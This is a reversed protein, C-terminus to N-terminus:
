NVLRMVVARNEQEPVGDATSVRPQGEGVSGVTMNDTSIGLLNLVEVVSQARRKSLGLNYDESGVADAHGQVILNGGAAAVDAAASIAKQGDFDIASGDTPFYVVWPGTPTNKVLERLGEEYMAKCAAIDAPQHGEEAQELWCEYGAFAKAAAAPKMPAVGSALVGKLGDYAPGLQKAYKAALNRNGPPTLMPTDGNAAMLANSGHYNADAWDEESREFDAIAMLEKYLAKNYADGGPSAHKADNYINACAGLGFGLVAVLATNKVIKLMPQGIEYHATKRRIM